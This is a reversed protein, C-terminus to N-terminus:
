DKFLDDFESNFKQTFRNDFDKRYNERRQENEAYVSRNREAREARQKRAQRKTVGPKRSYGSAAKPRETESGRFSNMEHTMKRILYLMAAAVPILILLVFVFKIFGM